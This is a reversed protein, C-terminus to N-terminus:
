HMSRRKETENSQMRDQDKIVEYDTAENEPELLAKRM